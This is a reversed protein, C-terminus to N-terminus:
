RRIGGASQLLDRFGVRERRATPIQEGRVIVVRDVADTLEGSVAARVDLVGRDDSGIEPECQSVKKPLRCVARFQKSVGGLGVEASDTVRQLPHRLGLSAPPVYQKVRRREHRGIPQVQAPPVRIEYSHRKVLHEAVRGPDTCQDRSWRCEAAQPPGPVAAGSRERRDGRGVIFTFPEIQSWTNGPELLTSDVVQIDRPDLAAEVPDLRDAEVGDM